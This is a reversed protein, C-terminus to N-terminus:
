QESNVTPSSTVAKFHAHFASSSMGAESSLSAIDLTRAYDAHISPFGSLFADRVFDGFSDLTGDVSPRWSFTLNIGARTPKYSYYINTIKTFQLSKLAIVAAV